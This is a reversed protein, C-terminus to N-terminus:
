ERDRLKFPLWFATARRHKGRKEYGALGYLLNWWKGNKSGGRSVFPYFHFQWSRDSDTRKEYVTNLVVHRTRDGVVSRGYFPFVVTYRADRDRRDFDYYFPFIVRSKRQKQGNELNWYFPFGIQSRKQLKFDKFDWYFPFSALRHTKKTDNRVDAWFPIALTYNISPARQVYILPHLSFNKTTDTRNWVFTPAFWWTDDHRDLSKKRGVLLTLWLDSIGEQHDTLWFPFILRTHNAPDQWDWYFPPLYLGHSKDRDDWTRVFLPAVADFNKDGRRRQYLLTFWSKEHEDRSYSLLPTILRFRKPGRALNFFLFPVTTSRLEPTQSHFVLPVLGWNSGEKERTYYFPPVITTATFPDDKTFRFFLPPVVTFGDSEDTKSWILPALGRWRSREGQVDYYLGVIHRHKKADGEIWTLLPPILTHYHGSLEATSFLPLLGVGWDKKDRHKYFPGLVFTNREPGRLSWVLGAAVDAQLKADRQFYYPLVFREVAKPSKRNFYFPFFATTTEDGQRDRAFPPAMRLRERPPQETVAGSVRLPQKRAEAEPDLKAPEAADAWAHSAIVLLLLTLVTTLSRNM